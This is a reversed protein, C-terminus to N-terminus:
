RSRSRRRRAAVAGVAGLWVIASSSGDEAQGMRCGCGHIITTSDDSDRGDTADEAPDESADRSGDGGDLDAADSSGADAPHCSRGDPLGVEAGFDYEASTGDVTVGDAEVAMFYLSLSVGSCQTSSTGLLSQCASAGQESYVTGIEANRILGVIDRARIDGTSSSQMAFLGAPTVPWCRPGGSSSERASAQTCDVSGAWVQLTDDCPLGGILVTFQLRVDAKCDDYDIWTPEENPPRLPYLNAPTDSTGTYRPVVSNVNVSIDACTDARASTPALVALSWAVVFAILKSRQAAM